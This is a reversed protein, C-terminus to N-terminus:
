SSRVTIAKRLFHSSHSSCDVFGIAVCSENIDDSDDV